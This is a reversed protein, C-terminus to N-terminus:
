QIDERVISYKRLILFQLDNAIRNIENSLNRHSENVTDVKTIQTMADRLKNRAEILIQSLAEIPILTFLEATSLKEGNRFAELATESEVVRALIAIERSEGVRKKGETERFLWDTLEKLHRDNIEIALNEKFNLELFESINSYSLATTLVAFKVADENVGPLEFFAREEIEEYVVLGTLQRNVYDARSGILKAVEKLKEQYSSTKSANYLQKLYRAKELAGWPKVGTLHRYGLYELVDERKEYKIVPILTPKQKATESAIEITKRRKKALLPNQLLKLATLRRNGEVVKWTDKKESEPIVLLPEGSFFGQEGISNMLEEITADSLMWDVITQEDSGDVSSPFRPNKSDFVLNTLPIFEITKQTPM